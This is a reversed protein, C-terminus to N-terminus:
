PWSSVRPEARRHHHQRRHLRPQLGRDAVAGHDPLHRRLEADGDGAREEQAGHRWLFLAPGPITMMLVLATSTLMWATDGTDLKPKEDAALALCRCFCGHRGGRLGALVPNFKFKM